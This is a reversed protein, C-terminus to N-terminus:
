AYRTIIAAKIVPNEQEEALLLAIEKKRQKWISHGEEPNDCYGLNEVTKTIPNSCRIRLRQSKEHLSVGMPYETEKSSKGNTIFSNIINSIFVCSSPSYQKNGEVLLDKDLQKGEWDQTEMWARFNSFYKWDECVTCEFYSPRRKLYAESYCRTLMNHWTRYYPCEWILTRSRKGNVKPNTGRIMVVYDADNVGVGYIKNKSM